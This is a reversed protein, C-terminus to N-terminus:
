DNDLTHGEVVPRLLEVGEFRRVLRWAVVDVDDVASTADPFGFEDLVETGVPRVDVKERSLLGFVTLALLEDFLDGVVEVIANGADVAPVVGEVVEALLEGGFSEDDGDVFEGIQDLFVVGERGIELREDIFV